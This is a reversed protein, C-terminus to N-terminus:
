NFRSAALPAPCHDDWAKQLSVNLALALCVAQQRLIPTAPCDISDDDCVIEVRSEGLRGQGCTIRVARVDGFSVSRSFHFRGIGCFTRITRRSVLVSVENRFIAAVIAAALFMVAFLFGISAEWRNQLLAWTGLVLHSAGLLGCFWVATWNPRSRLHIDEFRPRSCVSERMLNM